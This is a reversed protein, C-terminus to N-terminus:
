RKLIKEGILYDDFWMNLVYDGPSFANMYVSTSHIGETWKGFDQSWVPLGMRNTLQMRVHGAKPM